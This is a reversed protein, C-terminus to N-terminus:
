LDSPTIGDFSSDIRWSTSGFSTTLTPSRISARTRCFSSLSPRRIRDFFRACYSRAQPRISSVIADPWVILPGTISTTLPPKIRSM